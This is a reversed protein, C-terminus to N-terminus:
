RRVQPHICPKTSHDATNDYLPPVATLQTTSPQLAWRFAERADACYGPYTAGRTAAKNAIDTVFTNINIGRRRLLLQLQSGNIKLDGSFKTAFRNYDSIMNCHRAAFALEQQIIRGRVTQAEAENLCQGRGPSAMTALMVKAYAPSPPPPAAPKPPECAALSAAAFVVLGPRTWVNM